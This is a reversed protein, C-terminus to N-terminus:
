VYKIEIKVPGGETGGVEHKDRWGFRNKMNMYWLVANFERVRLGERGQKEWWAASLSRGKKITEAFEPEERLWREWLDTSMKGRMQMLVGRAEVDSGGEEYLEILADKWGNPLESLQAPKPGRKMPIEKKRSM